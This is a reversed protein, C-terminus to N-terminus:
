RDKGNYRKGESKKKMATVRVGIWENLLERKELGRVGKALALVDM